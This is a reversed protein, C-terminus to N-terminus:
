AKTNKRAKAKPKPKATAKPPDPRRLAKPLWRKGVLLQVAAATADAKKKPLTAAQEAGCAETVVAAIEAMPVRALYTDATPEWWDAMDLGLAQHLQYAEAVPKGYQRTADVVHATGAALVRLVTADDQDLLWAWLKALTPLEKRLASVHAKFAKAAPGKAATPSALEVAPRRWQNATTLPLVTADYSDFLTQSAIRYALLRLAIGPQTAVALQLAVTHHASLDTALAESLSGAPDNKARQKKAGPAGAGSAEIADAQDKRVLGRRIEINGDHKLAVLVGAIAKSEASYTKNRGSLEQRERQLLLSQQNVAEFRATDHEGNADLWADEDELSEELADIQETLLRIRQEEEDTLEVTDHDVRGFKQIESWDLRMRAEAWAWGEQDKTAEAIAQLKELTLQDLVTEDTVFTREGFLDRCVAEPAAASIADVGVFRVREDTQDINTDVFLRRLAEPKRDWPSGNLAVDLAALQASHGNGLTFAEAQALTLRGDTLAEIIPPALAALKMRQQVFAQTVGFRAAVTTVDDGAEIRQAFAKFQDVPTMNERMQNEALSIEDAGGASVIKCPVTHEPTWDGREVLLQVARLRRGGAVVDYRGKGTDIVALNQIINYTKINEALEAIGGPPYRRVNLPSLDLSAIALEVVQGDEKKASTTKTSM